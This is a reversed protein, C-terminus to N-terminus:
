ASPVPIPRATRLGAASAPAPAPAPEARAVFYSLGLGVVVWATAIPPSEIYPGTYFSVLLSVLTGCAGMGLAAAERSRTRVAATALTVLLALMAIGFLVLVLLGQEYAIMLYSNDIVLTSLEIDEGAVLQGAGGSGLGHGFPREEIEPVIQDWKVQRGIFTPDSGPDLINTYRDLRHPDTSDLVVGLTAVAAISCVVFAALRPKFGPYARALVYLGLVALLGLVFGAVPGRAGSAIMGTVCLSAAGVAVARRRGTLWLAAAACLPAMLATWFALQHGTQFSGVTRLEKTVPDINLGGATVSALDREPGAPGIAWRLTAYGGIIGAVVVLGFAIKRYTERTWGAYAIALFALMYWLTTRFGFWALAFNDATVMDIIGLGLYLACALV